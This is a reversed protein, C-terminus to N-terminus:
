AKGAWFRINKLIKLLMSRSESKQYAHAESWAEGIDRTMAPLVIIVQNVDIDKHCKSKQVKLHRLPVGGIPLGRQYSLYIRLPAEYNVKRNQKAATFAFHQMQHKMTICGDGSRMGTM